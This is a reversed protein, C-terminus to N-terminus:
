AAASGLQGVQELSIEGLIQVEAGVVERRGIVAMDTESEFALEAIIPRIAQEVMIVPHYGTAAMKTATSELALALGDMLSRPLGVRIENGERQWAAAIRDQLEQDITYVALWEDRPDVFRSTIHRALRLRVRELLEWRNDVLKINDGITELILELPRISVQEDLLGKLIQQVEGVSIADPILEDVLSPSKRRVEDILQATSERTLVLSAYREATRKLQEVIVQDATIVSYGAALTNEWSEPDIWFSPWPFFGEAPMSRIARNPIPSHAQGRDIALLSLPDVIGKQIVNGQLLIQFQNEALRLNDKVRIKPLILGLTKALDQRAEAIMPLVQGGQERDALRILGRGLEVEIVENTLLKEISLETQVSETDAPSKLPPPSGVSSKSKNQDGKKQEQYQSYALGLCGLALLLLPIKPLETMVLILMFVATLVLALPRGFVQQLSEQPLNSQRSHRTVLLAAASSIMLAPLQSALGDGITLKSFTNAASDLSMGHYVGIILGGVLNIMTIAIGAIADGRVFKSAGDMSGYFDTHAMTQERLLKAQQNTIAGANLDADIALQRGPMGDLAFRAAVESIRTAGKTIVVFQVIVVISFIVLGVVISDGTVFEAFSQIVAGAAAEQDQAGRTLIMRTTGINLALRALAAALLISPFVSFELPSRVYIAGLLILLAFAINGALLIDFLAPPLPVFIVLLCAILGAPIIVEPWRDRFNM